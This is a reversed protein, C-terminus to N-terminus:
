RGVVLFHPCQAGKLMSRHINKSILGRNEKFRALWKM